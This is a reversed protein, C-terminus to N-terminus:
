REEACRGPRPLQQSRACSRQYDSGPLSSAHKCLLWRLGVLSSVRYAILPHMRAMRRVTM